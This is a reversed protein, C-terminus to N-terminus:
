KKCIKNREALLIDGKGLNCEQCSTILNKKDWTGNKAQPHVHDIHLIVAEDKQPGRGCYQCRFGDRQLIEFRIRLLNKGKKNKISQEIEELPTDDYPFGTEHLAKRLHLFFMEGINNGRTLKSKSYKKFDDLDNIELEDVLRALANKDRTSAMLKFLNKIEERM